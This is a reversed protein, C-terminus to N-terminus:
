ISMIQNVVFNFKEILWDDQIQGSNFSQIGRALTFRVEDEKIQMEFTVKRGACCELNDVLSDILDLDSNLDFTKPEPSWSCISKEVPTTTQVNLQQINAVIIKSRKTDKAIQFVACLPKTSRFSEIQGEQGEGTYGHKRDHKVRTLLTPLLVQATTLPYQVDARDAPEILDIEM